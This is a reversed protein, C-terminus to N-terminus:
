LSPACIDPMRVERRASFSPGFCSNEWFTHQKPRECFSNAETHVSEGTCVVKRHLGEVLIARATGSAFAFPHQRLLETAGVQGLLQWSRHACEWRHLSSKPPTRSGLHSGSNRKILKKGLSLQQMEIVFYINAVNDRELMQFGNSQWFKALHSRECSNNRSEFVTKIQLSKWTSEDPRLEHYGWWFLVHGFLAILFCGDKNHHYYM